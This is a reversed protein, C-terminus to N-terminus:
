YLNLIDASVKKREWKGGMVCVCVCRGGVGRGPVYVCARACVEGTCGYGSVWKNTAECKAACAEKSNDASAGIQSGGAIQGARCM